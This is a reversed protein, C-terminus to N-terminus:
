RRPRVEDAFFGWVGRGQARAIRERVAYSFPAYPLAVALGQEILWGGLDVAPDLMSDGRAFCVAGLSGDRYREQVICRVFGQIKFELALAARPACRPPRIVTRCQRGTDPLYIGFLRIRRGQVRLTADDGVIAYSEIITQRVASVSAQVPEGPLMQVVLALVIPALWNM